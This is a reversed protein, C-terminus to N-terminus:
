HQLKLQTRILTWMLFRDSVMLVFAPSPESLIETPIMSKRPPGLTPLSILERKKLNDEDKPRKEPHKAYCNNEKHILRKNKHKLCYPCYKNDASAADSNGVQTV